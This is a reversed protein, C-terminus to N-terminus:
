KKITIYQSIEFQIFEEMEQIPSPHPNDVSLANQLLLFINHFVTQSTSLIDDPKLRTLLLNVHTYLVEQFKNKIFFEHSLGRERYMGMNIKEDIFYYESLNNFKKNELFDNFITKSQRKNRVTRELILQRYITKLTVDTPLLERNTLLNFLSIFEECKKFNNNFARKGKEDGELYMSVREASSLKKPIGNSSILSYEKPPSDLNKCTSQLQQLVLIDELFHTRFITFLLFEAYTMFINESCHVPKVEKPLNDLEQCLQQIADVKINFSKKTLANTIIQLILWCTTDIYLLTYYHKKWIKFTNEFEEDLFKTSLILKQIAIRGFILEEKPSFDKSAIDAIFSFKKIWRKIIDRVLQQYSFYFEQYHKISSEKDSSDENYEKEVLFMIQDILQTDATLNIKSLNSKVKRVSPSPDLKRIYDLYFECLKELEDNTTSDLDIIPMTYEISTKEFPYQGSLQQYFPLLSNHIALPQDFSFNSKKRISINKSITYLRSNYTSKNEM